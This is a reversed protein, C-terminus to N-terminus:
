ASFKRMEMLSFPLLTPFHQWRAILLKDHGLSTSVIQTVSPEPPTQPVAVPDPSVPVTIGSAPFQAATQSTMPFNSQRPASPFNSLRSANPFNSLRSPYRQQSGSSQSEPKTMLAGEASVLTTDAAAAADSNVFV